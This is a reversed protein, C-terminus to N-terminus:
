AKKGDGIGDAQHFVAFTPKSFRGIRLVGLLPLAWDLGSRGRAPLLTVPRTEMMWLMSAEGAAAGM